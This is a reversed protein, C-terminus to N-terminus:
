SVIYIGKQENKIWTLDNALERTEYLVLVAPLIGTCTYLDLIRKFTVKANVRQWHM